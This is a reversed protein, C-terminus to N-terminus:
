VPPWSLPQLKVLFKLHADCGRRALTGGADEEAEGGEPPLGGWVCRRAKRAQLGSTLAGPVGTGGPKAFPGESVPGAGWGEAPVEGRLMVDESSSGLRWCKM